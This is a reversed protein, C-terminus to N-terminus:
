SRSTVLVPVAKKVTVNKSIFYCSTVMLTILFVLIACAVTIGVVVVSDAHGDGPRAPPPYLVKFIYLLPM